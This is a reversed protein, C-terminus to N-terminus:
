NKKIQSPTIPRMEALEDDPNSWLVREESLDVGYIESLRPLVKKMDEQCTQGRYNDFKYHVKGDLEISFQAKNGSPRSAQIVVVNEDNSKNIKPKLVTFGAHQLSEYVAKVMEKRINEDIMMQDMNQAVSEIQEISTEPDSLLVTLQQTLKMNLVEPLKAERIDDELQAAMASISEKDQKKAEKQQHDAQRSEIDQKIQQMEVKIMSVTYSSNEAFIKQRLGALSKLAMNRIVRNDWTSWEQQWAAELEAYKEQQALIRLREKEEREFQKNEQEVRQIERAIRPLRHIASNVQFSIERAQFADTELLSHMHNIQVRIERLESEIFESLGQHELDKLISEYRDIYSLTTQKVRDQAIARERQIRYQREHIASMM